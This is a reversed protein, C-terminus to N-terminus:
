DEADRKRRGSFTELDKRFRGSFYLVGHPKEVIQRYAIPIETEGCFGSLAAAGCASIKALAPTTGHLALCAGARRVLKTPLWNPERVLKAASWNADPRRKRLASFRVM